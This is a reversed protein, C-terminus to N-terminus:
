LDQLRVIQVDPNRLKQWEELAELTPKLPHGIAIARGTLLAIKEARRLEALANAKTEVVDLFVDRKYSTLGQRLGQEYFVSRHHTLSDLLFYNKQRLVGVVTATKQQSQTFRSGMHNNLGVAYPVKALSSLIGQEIQANSMNAKLTGKGSDVRPYGLPEMPQHVIIERGKAHARRAGEEVKPSDPWFAFTVPYNLSLLQEVIKTSYGLDDVVIVLKAPKDGTRLSAFPTISVTKQPSDLQSLVLRHTHVSGHYLDWETASVKHLVTGETWTGLAEKLALEFINPSAPLYLRLRQFKYKQGLQKLSKQELLELNRPSIQAAVLAQLLAYDIYSVSEAMSPAYNEEYPSVYLEELAKSVASKTSDSLLINKETVSGTGKASEPVSSQSSSVPAKASEPVSNKGKDAVIKAPTSLQPATRKEGEIKQPINKEEKLKTKIAATNQVLAPMKEEHLFINVAFYIVFVAIVGAFFALLLSSHGAMNKKARGKSSKKPAAKKAGTSKPASKSNKKAPQKRAPTM